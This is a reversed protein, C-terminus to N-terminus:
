DECSVGNDTTLVSKLNKITLLGHELAYLTLGQPSHTGCIVNVRQRHTEVTKISIQLNKAIAKSSAGRVILAFVEKERRTLFAYGMGARELEHRSM